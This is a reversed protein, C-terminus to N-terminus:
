SDHATKFPSEEGSKQQHHELLRRVEDYAKQKDKIGTFLIRIEDIDDKIYVAEDYAILAIQGGPGFTHEEREGRMYRERQEKTPASYKSEYRFVGM